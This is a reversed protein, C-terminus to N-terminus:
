GKKIFNIMFKILIMRQLNFKLKGTSIPMFYNKGRSAMTNANGAIADDALADTFVDIIFPATCDLVFAIIKANFYTKKWWLIAIYKKGCIPTDKVATPLNGLSLGCYRSDTNANAGVNQNCTAASDSIGIYDLTCFTDQLM